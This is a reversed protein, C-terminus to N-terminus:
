KIETFILRVYSSINLNKEKAKKVIKEKLEKPIKVIITDTM